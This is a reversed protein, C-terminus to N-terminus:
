GMALSHHHREESQKVQEDPGPLGGERRVVSRATGISGVPVLWGPSPAVGQDADRGERTELGDLLGEWGRWRRLARIALVQFVTAESASAVRHALRAALVATRFCLARQQRYYARRAQAPFRFPDHM